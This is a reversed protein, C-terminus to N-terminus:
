CLIIRGLDIAFTSLLASNRSYVHTVDPFFLIDLVGARSTTM